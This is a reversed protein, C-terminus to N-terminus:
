LITDIFIGIIAFGIIGLLSLLLITMMNDSVKLVTILIGCAILIRLLNKLLYNGTGSPIVFNSVAGYTTGDADTVFRYYVRDSKDFGTITATYGGIATIVIDPTTNVLAGEGYGWEFYGTASPLGLMSTVTGQLTATPIADGSLGTATQTSVIPAFGMVSLETNTGTRALLLSSNTIGDRGLMKESVMTGLGVQATLQLFSLLTTLVALVIVIAFAISVRKIWKSWGFHPTRVTMTNMTTM